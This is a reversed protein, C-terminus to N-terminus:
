VRHLRQPIQISIQIRGLAPSLPLCVWAVVYRSTACVTCWVKSPFQAALFELTACRTTSRTTSATLVEETFTRAISLKKANEKRAAPVETGLAMRCVGSSNRWRIQKRDYRIPYLARKFFFFLLRMNVCALAPMCSTPPKPRILLGTNHKKVARVFGNPRFVKMRGKRMINHGQKVAILVGM